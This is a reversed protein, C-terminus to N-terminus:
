FGHYEGIFSGMWKAEEQPLETLEEETPRWPTPMVFSWVVKIIEKPLYHNEAVPEFAGELLAVAQDQEDRLFEIIARLSARRGYQRADFALRLPTRGSNDQQLISFKDCKLLLRINGDIREIWPSTCAYHLPLM